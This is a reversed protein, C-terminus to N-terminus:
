MSLKIDAAKQLEEVYKQVAEQNLRNAIMKSAEEKGPLKVDRKDELKIIHYGFDTKVPDSIEGVKMSLAKKEFEPVMQGETFYGLQGGNAKTGTDESYQKAFEAFKTGKAGLKKKIDEAEKETKVLIHSAKVEKKGKMEASIKAYEAEIKEKTAVNETVKAILEQQLLQKRVAEYKAKFSETKDLGKKTAEKDLLKSNIYGRVLNERLNKDLDGFKKGKLEPQSAFIPAFEAMIEAETVSGGKFTALTNAFSSVAVLSSISAALFIKKFKTM